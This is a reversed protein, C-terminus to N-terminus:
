QERKVQEWIVDLEEASCEEIRKGAQEVRHTLRRFRHTFRDTAGALANGPEVNIFRSLNVATFFLDGLERQAHEEDGSAIASEFEGIEEHMKALPGSIGPWDFGTEAAKSQSEVARALEDHELTM